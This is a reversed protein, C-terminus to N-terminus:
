PRALMAKLNLPSDTMVADIGLNAAAEYDTPTEVGFAVITVGANSKFCRVADPTWWHADIQTIGEGLTYREIVQVKRHLEIGVWTGTAPPVDCRHNIAVQVLRERTADRSEFLRAEPHVRMLATANASTSYLRVRNWAHEETLVKAIGDVLPAEPTQKMDLM